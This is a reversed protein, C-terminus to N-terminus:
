STKEVEAKLNADAKPAEARAFLSRRKSKRQEKEKAEGMEDVEEVRPERSRSRDKGREHSREHRRSWSMSRAMAKFGDHRERRGEDKGTLGLINRLEDIEAHDRTNKMRHVWTVKGDEFLMEGGVQRLDGGQVIGKGSKICQYMSQMTTSVMSAKMYDPRKPGLSLTRMMGFYDYLKATPDAFIPFPCNTTQAYMSILEPRGCGVVTIFTPTPLALLADPTVSASLTRLYEQCNGCFFHRVFIILQREAVGEGSYLSKFPRSEGDAGLVLMDECKKIDAETPLEQSVQVDGKFDASPDFDCAAATADPEKALSADKEDTIDAAPAPAPTHAQPEPKKETSAPRQQEPTPETTAAM